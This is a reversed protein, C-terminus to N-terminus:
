MREEWWKAGDEAPNLNRFTPIKKEFLLQCLGTRGGRNKAVDVDIIPRELPQGDSPPQLLVVVDADQEIDGAERLDSMMIQGGARAESTRNVQAAALVPIDLERAMHKCMRSIYGVEQQRSRLKEGWTNDVETLQLYDLILLDLKGQSRMVKAKAFINEIAMAPTDDTYITWDRSRDIRQQYMGWEETNLRGLMIDESTVNMDAGIIRSALEMNSMELSYIGVWKRGRIAASRAVDVILTSKGLGPRTAVVYFKQNYLGHLYLKDLQYFGTAITPPSSNRAADVSTDYLAAVTDGIYKTRETSVLKSVNNAEMTVSSILEDETAGEDYAMKVIQNASAIMKRRVFEKHVMKAYAECHLSSPVQNLLLTIYANGGIEELTGRRELEESVTLFDIPTHSKELAMFSEWIFRHRVIYFDEGTLTGQLVPLVEPNILVSGIVAEEAERNFPIAPTTVSDTM